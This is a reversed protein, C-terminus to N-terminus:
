KLQELIERALVLERDLEGQLGQVEALLTLPDEEGVAVRDPERYVAPALSWDHDQIDAITAKWMELGREEIPLREGALRAHVARPMKKLESWGGGDVGLAEEPEAACFWVHETSRGNRILLVATRVGAYPGFASPPLLVIAEVTAHTLLRRRAEVHAKSSGFLVGEPLVLGARGGPRLMRRCRELFLLETRSTELGLTRDIGERDISGTFPPNVLVVDVQPSTFASSLTDEQRISPEDIGHLIMNIAGLRAMSPDIDYALFSTPESEGDAQEEVHRQAAVLFGATGAAPDCIVEGPRPRVLDVIAEILPRPTLFRGHRGTLPLQRLLEEYVDGEPTSRRAGPELSDLVYMCEVVLEPTSIEFTAGRMVRWFHAGASERLFPILDEKLLTLRAEGSQSELAKWRLAPSAGFHRGAGRLEEETELRDFRRLLLLYSIQEVAELSDEIGSARLREWLRGIVEKAEGSM